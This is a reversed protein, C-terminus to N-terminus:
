KARIVFAASDEAWEVDEAVLQRFWEGLKGPRSAYSERHAAEASPAATGDQFLHDMRTKFAVVRLVEASVPEGPPLEAKLRIGMNRLRLDPYTISRSPTTCNEPAHANPFVLAWDGEQAVNLLYVCAERTVTITAIADDGNVFNQKNLDLMVRFGKDMRDPRRAICARLRVVYQMRGGSIAVPKAELIEEGLILGSQTSSILSEVLVQQGALGEQEFIADRARIEYGLVDKIAQKRALAM